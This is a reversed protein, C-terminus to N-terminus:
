DDNDITVEARGDVLVANTAASLDLFFSEDAELVTDGHVPVHVTMEGAGPLFTLDGEVADYDSGAMATGDVTAYHVTVTRGTGRSLRVRM